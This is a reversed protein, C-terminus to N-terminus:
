RERRRAAVALAMLLVAVGSSAPDAAGAAYACGSDGRGGDGGTGGAGGTGAAGGSGGADEEGADILPDTGGSSAVATTAGATATGLLAAIALGVGLFHRARGQGNSIRHNM